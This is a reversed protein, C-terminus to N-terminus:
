LDDVNMLGPVFSPNSKKSISGKQAADLFSSKLGFGSLRVKWDPDKSPIDMLRVVDPEFGPHKPNVLVEKIGYKKLTNVVSPTVRTGITYHLVPKELYQGSSQSGVQKLESGERPTYERQIYTYPVREGIEYGAVGEPSTVKVRDFFGRSLAEINKRNSDVNHKNLLEYFKDVFYKRGEGIGKYGALEAPNPTGDSLMDGAEVKDGAKVILKRHEPIHIQEGGVRIYHGGQPAKYINEIIGDKPALVSKGVFNKPVDVFQEIEEFGSLEHSESGLAGGSHKSSNSCVIFPKIIFNHSPHDIELDFTERKGVPEISQIATEINETNYLVSLDSIPVMMGNFMFKHEPTCIVYSENFSYKNCERLGNNFVNKVKTVVKNGDSDVSIVEDGVSMDKIKIFSGTPTLVETNGDLCLGLQVLPESTVRAAHVGLYDGIAPYTGKERIGSCLQCVGEPQQCTALSRVLITKDELDPLMEKTIVAGKKYKGVDQALVSGINDEDDGERPLGIDEAGCDRGTVRINNTSMTLRKGFYGTQATSIQVDSNSVTCNSVVKYLHDPHDVWLDYTPKEGVYESGKFTLVMYDDESEIRMNGFQELFSKGKYGITEFIECFKCTIDKSQKAQLFFMDRKHEVLSDEIYSDKYGDYVSKKVTKIDSCMIGFVNQLLDKLDELLGKSTLGWRICPYHCKSPLIWSGDSEFLGYIFRAIDVKPWTFVEKPIRKEWAKKGLVGLDNLWRKLSSRFEGKPAYPPSDTSFVVYSYGHRGRGPTHKLEINCDKLEEGLKQMCEEDASSLTIANTTLCGDGLLLGLLFARSNESPRNDILGQNYWMGWQKRFSGLPALFPKRRYTCRDGNRYVALVKHDETACISVLNNKGFSKGRKFVYRYVPKIGQEIKKVVKVPTSRGFSDSGIIIDGANIDKICVKTYDSLFVKEDGDICMGKRSGFSGAFYETPMVGEGYSHLAPIPIPNGNHDAVLVDGFLLQTLQPPSGRFGHVIANAFANNNKASAERVKVTIEDLKKQMYETIRKSKDEMSISPDQSISHVHQRIRDRYEQMAPPLELDDLGVSAENGRETSVIRGINNLKQLTDVYDEPSNVAIDEFLAKVGKKDLIYERDKLRDPLAEKILLRGITEVKPM